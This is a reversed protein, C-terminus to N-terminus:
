QDWQVTYCLVYYLYELRGYVGRCSPQITQRYPQLRLHLHLGMQRGRSSTDYALTEHSVQPRSRTHPGQLRLDLLVRCRLCCARSKHLATESFLQINYCPSDPKHYVTTNTGLGLNSHPYADIARSLIVFQKATCGLLVAITYSGDSFLLNM